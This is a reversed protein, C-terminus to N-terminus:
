MLRIIIIICFLVTSYLLSVKTYVNALAGGSSLAPKVLMRTSRCGM